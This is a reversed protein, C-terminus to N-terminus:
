IKHYPLAINFDTGVDPISKVTITGGHANVVKQAFYLGLGLGKASHLNGSEARYFKKFIKKLQDSAIGIGNDKISINYFNEHCSTEIKIVPNKSYKIANNLMNFFVLYLNDSDGYLRTNNEELKWEVTGNAKALMTDLQAVVKKLLENPTLEERQIAFHYNGAVMTKVLNAIHTKLYDTQFRIADVYKNFRDPQSATAPKKLGDVSIDIVSLPTSFEHTVNNIFDKQVEVLFKQKYFYYVSFAFGVLLILIAISAFIWNRMQFIIYKNRNPFFLHVYHYSRKLVPLNEATDQGKKTADASLYKEFVYKNHQSDYLAMKCDTFVKFAELEATVSAALSDESPLAHVQFLFNSESHREVLSDLPINPNYLLPIDEYVGRITKLVSTNFENKEFSYTKNLWFVQMAIIIAILLSSIVLILRTTASRM